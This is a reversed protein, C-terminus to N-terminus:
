WGKRGRQKIQNEWRKIEEGRVEEKREEIKNIGKRRGGKARKEEGKESQKIQYCNVAM